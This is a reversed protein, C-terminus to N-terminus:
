GKSPVVVSCKINREGLEQCKKHAEDFSPIPLKYYNDVNSGLTMKTLGDFPDGSYRGQLLKSLTRSLASQGASEIKLVPLAGVDHDYAVVYPVYPASKSIAFDRDKVITGDYGISLTQAIDNGYRDNKDEVNLLYGGPPINFMVYYGDRETKAYIPERKPDDLSTLKLTQFGAGSKHGDEDFLHVYGEVEGTLHVPFEMQYLSGPDPFISRGQTASIMFPDPLTDEDVIIDTAQQASLDKISAYGNENTQARRKYNVSEIITEPLPEDDGDYLLNGDKDHYVLASLAGRGVYRNGDMDPWISNPDDTLSFNLNVGAIVEEDTNMQVYPSLRFKDNTYNVNLRATDLDTLFQRDYSFDGSLNQNHRYNIQGVINKIQSDPVFGYISGLRLFYKGWNKRASFTYDFRKDNNGGSIDSEEYLLRNSFNAGYINNSIGLGYNTFTSGAATEQYSANALINSRLGFPHIQKQANFGLELVSPDVTEGYIYDDTNARANLSLDWDALRRRVIAEGAFEGGEDVSFNTDLLTAGLTSSVGTSVYAKRDGGIQNSRIGVFGLNDDGILKNYRAAFHPTNRDKDKSANGQYTQTDEFSISVEYTNNQSQLLQQNVPVAIEETRIEGQPGFFFLEFRNDGVFLQIDSFRYRGSQDVVQSSVLIDNRYLEIDWGPISDGEIDTSAFDTNDLKNNDFRFGLDQGAGGTLPVNVIDVDGFSYSRANLPGLLEPEESRKSFRSVINQLGDNSNSSGFVYANHKLIEGELIMSGSNLTQPTGAKPDDYRTSLFIDTTNIDFNSKEQELRPLKAENKTIKDRRNGRKQRLNKAISPLPFSSEVNLIQDKIDYEFELGMWQALTEGEIFIMGGDNYIQDDKVQYSVNQSVVEKTKFNANFEWDERIYWGDAVQTDADYNISFDLVNVIDDFSLYIKGNNKIAYIEDTYLLKQSKPRLLLTGGDPIQDIPQFEVKNEYTSEFKKVFDLAIDSLTTAADAKSDSLIVCFCLILFLERRPKFVNDPLSKSHNKKM